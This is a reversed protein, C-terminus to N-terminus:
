YTILLDNETVLKTLVAALDLPMELANESVVQFLSCECPHYRRSVVARNRYVDSVTQRGRNAEFRHNETGFSHARM